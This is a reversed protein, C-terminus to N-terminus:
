LAMFVFVTVHKGHLYRKCGELREGVRRGLGNGESFLFKNFICIKNFALYVSSFICMCICSRFIFWMHALSYLYNTVHIVEVFSAMIFWM